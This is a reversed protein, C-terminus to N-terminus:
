VAEVEDLAVTVTSVGVDVVDKQTLRDIQDLVGVQDLSRVRVLDGVKPPMPTGAVPAQALEQEIAGELVGLELLLSRKSPEDRRLCEIQRKLERLTQYAAEGNSIKALEQQARADELEQQTEESRSATDRQGSKASSAPTSGEQRSRM